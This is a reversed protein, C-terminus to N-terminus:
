SQKRKLVSSGGLAAVAMLGLMSAPEPVAQADTITVNDIDLVSAANDFTSLPFGPIPPITLSTA